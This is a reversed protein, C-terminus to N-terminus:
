EQEQHGDTQHGRMYIAATSSIILDNTKTNTHPAHTRYNHESKALRPSFLCRWYIMNKSSHGVHATTCLQSAPPLLAIGSQGFCSKLFARNAWFLILVYGLGSGNFSGPVMHGCARFGQVSIHMIHPLVRLKSLHGSNSGMGTESQEKHRTAPNGRALGVFV